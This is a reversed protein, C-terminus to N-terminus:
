FQGAMSGAYGTLEVYGSGSVPAGAGDVRAAGEWYVYSLDMEQDQLYPTVTLALGASPVGIKWGSPYDAGTHPSRWQGLAQVTFDAPGLRRSTGDPAVLTGASYPDPSGGADRIQSIMLERGDALQLGFWDWGAQNAGLASTSFEHDMWSLGSVAFARGGVTVQGRTAIRTLSYYYSANGPDPGKRSYGANGELVPAKLSDLDLALEIGPGGATQGGAATNGAQEAELRVQAASGAQAVSWNDLWVRYPVAQAGALGAAGRELREYAYHQGGAVDTLALHAMYVQDTAWDSARAAVLGPPLLARRFFTLQYGFHGGGEATLNGTYYWWETQYADHPGADAPFVLPRPGTARAYGASAPGTQGSDGPPRAEGRAADVPLPAGSIGAQARPM